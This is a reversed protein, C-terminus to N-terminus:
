LVPCNVVVDTEELTVDGAAVAADVDAAEPTGNTVAWIPAVDNGEALKVPGLDVYAIMDGRAFGLVEPQDFGLVPCNVVTDTEVITVEGAGAAAVVEAASRLTRPEVGAAWTV